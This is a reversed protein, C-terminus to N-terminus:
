RSEVTAGDVLSAPKEEAFEKGSGAYNEQREQINAATTMAEKKVVEEVKSAFSTGYIEEYAKLFEPSTRFARFLPWDHYAYEYVLAGRKGISRMINAADAFKDRLVADALRFDKVSATLDLGDLLKLAEDPSNNFKLGIALNVTNIKKTVDSSSKSIMPSLAFRSVAIAFRYRERRLADFAIHHLHKDAPEIEKPLVKRWLTHGLTAGLRLMLGITDMTHNVDMFYRHGVVIAADLKVDHKKCMTLYQETVVGDCHVYLNRRQGAEVFAHWDEFQRLPLGFVREMYDFQEVYSKRRLDEIEEQLLADRVADVTGHRVIEDLTLSREITAFLDPKGKFLATVLESVYTDLASFMSVYLSSLLVEPVHSYRARRASNVFEDVRKNDAISLPEDLAKRAVLLDHIAKCDADFTKAETLKAELAKLTHVTM